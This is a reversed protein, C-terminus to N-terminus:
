IINFINILAANKILNYSKAILRFLQAQDSQYRGDSERLNFVTVKM